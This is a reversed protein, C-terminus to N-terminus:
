LQVTSVTSQLMRDARKERRAIIWRGLAVGNNEIAWWSLFALPTSILIVFCFSAAWGFTQGYVWRSTFGSHSHELKQLLGDATMTVFFHLLYLSYSIKGIFKTVPNVLLPYAYLSLALVVPVFLSSTEYLKEDAFPLCGLYMALSGSLLVLSLNMREELSIRVDAIYLKWIRYTLIGLLFVPFEVPFWLFAFYQQIESTKQLSAYHWSIKGLVVASVILAIVSRRITSLYKHLVPLLFYFTSEIAVSWGGIAISNITKPQLGNLFVFGSLVDLATFDPLGNLEPAIWHSFFNLGIAIYFLPAIRFFRRLFYNTLPHHEKKRNDLSYCLTFASVIYFLQVGRQGTFAYMWNDGTQRSLIATHVLVVGIIAIGRLADLFEFRQMRADTNLQSLQKIEL